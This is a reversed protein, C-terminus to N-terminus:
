SLLATIAKPSVGFCKVSHDVESGWAGWTPENTTFKALMYNDFFHEVSAGVTVKNQGGGELKVAANNAMASIYNADDIGLTGDIYVEFKSTAFQIITLIQVWQSHALHIGSNNWSGGAYHQLNRSVQAAVHPGLLGDAATWFVTCHHVENVSNDADGACWYYIIQRLLDLGPLNITTSKRWHTEGTSAKVKISHTGSRAQDTSLECNSTGSFSDLFSKDPDADDGYIFTNDISSVATATANGYYIFGSFDNPHAPISGIEIWLIAENADCWDIFYDLLTTGDSTTIRIDDYDAQCKSGLYVVGRTFAGFAESGDVGASRYIHLCVQYNTQAGDATHQITFPKSYKYGALLGM